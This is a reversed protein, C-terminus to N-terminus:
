GDTTPLKELTCINGFAARTHAPYNRVILATHPFCYSCMTALHCNNINGLASGLQLVTLESPRMCCWRFSSAVPRTGLGFRQPVSSPPLPSNLPPTRRPWSLLFALSCVRKRQLSPTFQLASIIGYGSRLQICYSYINRLAIMSLNLSGTKRKICFLINPSIL